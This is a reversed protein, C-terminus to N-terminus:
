SKVSKVLLLHNPFNAKYTRTAVYLYLTSAVITKTSLTQIKKFFNFRKYEQFESCVPHIRAVQQRGPRTKSKPKKYSQKVLVCKQLKTASALKGRLREKPKTGANKGVLTPNRSLGFSRRCPLSYLRLFHYSRTPFHSSFVRNRERGLGRERKGRKGKGKRSRDRWGSFCAGDKKKKKSTQFVCFIVGRFVVVVHGLM